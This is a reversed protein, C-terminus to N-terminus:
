VGPINIGKIKRYLDLAYLDTMGSVFDVVAQVKEYTTKHEGRYQALFLDGLNECVIWGEGDKGDGTFDATLQIAGTV